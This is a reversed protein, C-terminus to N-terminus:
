LDELVDNECLRQVYEELYNSCLQVLVDIKKWSILFFVPTATREFSDRTETHSQNDGKSTPSQTLINSPPFFFAIVDGGHEAAFM